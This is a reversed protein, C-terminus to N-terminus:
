KLRREIGTQAIIRTAIEEVSYRTTNICPINERQFMQEVENVEMECQRVSSYRSGPRRENRIAALHGADITLGFLKNKHERLIAPLRMMDIDDETIPYNAARIGFQLGMYLCTPTKGCRSVGIILVDAKDYYRTKAGDDNDIAFHVADIRQNYQTNATIARKQGIKHMAQQCLEQELGPIFAQFIDITHANASKMIESISDDVITSFLLPKHEGSGTERNIDTIVARAKEPTDIYPLTLNDFEVHDFQALLSKGFSEATIGTGDSIFYVKRKM